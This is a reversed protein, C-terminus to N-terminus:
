KISIIFGPTWKQANLAIAVSCGSKRSRAELMDASGMVRLAGTELAIGDSMMSHSPNEAPYGSVIFQYEDGNAAALPAAVFAASLAAAAAKAKGMLTEGKQNELQSDTITAPSSLGSSVSSVPPVSVGGEVVEFSSREAGETAMAEEQGDAEGGGTLEVNEKILKVSALVFGAMVVLSAAILAWKSLSLRRWGRRATQRAHVSAALRDAFGDPLRLDACSANIKSFFVIHENRRSQFYSRCAACHEIHLRVRREPEGHLSVDLTDEILNRYEQCNM